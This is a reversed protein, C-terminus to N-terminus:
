RTVSVSTTQKVDSYFNLNMLGCTKLHSLNWRFPSCVIIGSIISTHLFQERRLHKWTSVTVLICTMSMAHHWKRHSFHCHYSMSTTALRKKFRLRYLFCISIKYPSNYSFYKLSWEHQPRYLRSRCLIPSVPLVRTMACRLQVKATSCWNVKIRIHSWWSALSMLWQTSSWTVLFNPFLWYPQFQLSFQM